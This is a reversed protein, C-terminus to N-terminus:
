LVLTAQLSGLSIREFSNKSCFIKGAWTANGGCCFHCFSMFFTV